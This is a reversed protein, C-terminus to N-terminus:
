AARFNMTRSGLLIRAAVLGWFPSPMRAVAFTFRVLTVGAGAFGAAADVCGVAAGATGDAATGAFGATVIGGTAAVGTVTVGVAGVGGGAVSAM